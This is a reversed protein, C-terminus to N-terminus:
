KKYFTKNWGCSICQASGRKIDFALKRSCVPCKLKLPAETGRM